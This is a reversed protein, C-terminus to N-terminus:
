APLRIRTLGEADGSRLTDHAGRGVDGDDSGARVTKRDGRVQALAPDIEADESRCQAGPTRLHGLAHEQLGFAERRVDVIRAARERELTEAALISKGVRVM